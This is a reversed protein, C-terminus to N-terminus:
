SKACLGAIYPNGRREKGVTTAPGHGSYVHTEDPLTLINKGISEMLQKQSGGPLDWRGVAGAFLVDGGFLMGEDEFYFGLSGPCHGPCHLLDFNFGSIKMKKEDDVIRSAKCPELDFPNYNAQIAPNEILPASDRHILTPMGLEKQIAAADMVHDWHGHTLLLGAVRVGSEACRKRLWALMGEPADVVLAATDRILLYGNTEVAGGCYVEVQM